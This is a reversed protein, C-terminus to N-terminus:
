NLVFERSVEAAFINAYGLRTWVRLVVEISGFIMKVSKGRTTGPHLL